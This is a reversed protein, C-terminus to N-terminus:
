KSRAGLPKRALGRQQIKIAKQYQEIAQRLATADEGKRLGKATLAKRMRQILDFDDEDRYPKLDLDEPVKQLREDGITKVYKQM